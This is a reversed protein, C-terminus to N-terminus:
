SGVISTPNETVYTLIERYAEAKAALMNLHTPICERQVSYFLIYGVQDEYNKKLKKLLARTEALSLFNDHILKLQNKSQEENM